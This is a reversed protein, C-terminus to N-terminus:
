PEQRSLPILALLPARYILLLLGIVSMEGLGSISRRISFGTVFSILGTAAFFFVARAFLVVTARSPGALDPTDLHNVVVRQGDSALATAIAKGIGTAAGTVIAAKGELRESM